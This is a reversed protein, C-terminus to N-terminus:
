PQRPAIVLRLTLPKSTWMVQRSSRPQRSKKELIELESQSLKKSTAFVQMMSNPVQTTAALELAETDCDYSRKLDRLLSLVGKPGLMKLVLYMYHPIAMFKALAPRGLITHYSTKFDVVEFRIYETQYHEKTGFTVPLVM